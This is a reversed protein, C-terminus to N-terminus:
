RNDPLLKRLRVMITQDNSDLIQLMIRTVEKLSDDTNVSQLLLEELSIHNILSGGIMVCLLRGVEEFTLPGNKILVQINKIDCFLPGLENEFLFGMMHLQALIDMLEVAARLTSNPNEPKTFFSRVVSVIQVEFDQITRLSSESGIFYKRFHLSVKQKTEKLHLLDKESCVEANDIGKLMMTLDALSQFDSGVTDVSDSFAQKAGASRLSHQLPVGAKVKSEKRVFEQICDNKVESIASLVIREGMEIAHSTALSSAIALVDTDTGPPALLSLSSKITQRFSDRILKVGTVKCEESLSELMKTYEALSMMPSTNLYEEYDTGEKVFKPQICSLKITDSANKIVRDVIVECLEQLVKHQHFFSDILKEKIGHKDTTPTGPRSSSWPSADGSVSLSLRHMYKQGSGLSGLSISRPRVKKTGSNGPRINNCSLDSLLQFLDEFYPVSSALFKKSYWLPLSDFQISKPQDFSKGSVAVTADLASTAARPPLNVPSLNQTVLLGVVDNFFADLQLYVLIMNNQLHHNMENGCHLNISRLLTFTDVYYPLKKSSADWRMMSLFKVVWPITVVLRHQKWSNEIHMKLDLPPLTDVGYHDNSLGWNPSFVLLGLFKALLEVKAIHQCFGKTENVANMDSIYQALRRKLHTNFRYSDGAQLVIFFFEQHEQFSQEPTVDNFSSSKQDLSLKRSSKNKQGSKSTFRMQLKELRKKDTVHRLVESDTEGVPLLGIQLLLDCFFNVFWEINGPSVNKMMDRAERKISNISNDLQENDMLKGRVEQFARLQYLFSDRLEEREKFLRSLDLSRFNHRSDRAYDFPLTLHPTQADSGLAKQGTEFILETKAQHMNNKLTAVLSPCHQQLAPLASFLKVTEYGINIIMVELSVLVQTVFFICCAESHFIGALVNTKNTHRTQSLKEMTDSLSILRMLLHLELLIFPALHSKIITCYISALRKLKEKEIPISEIDNPTPMQQDSICFQNFKDVPLSSIGDSSSSVVLDINNTETKSAIASQKSLNVAAHGSVLKKQKAKSDKPKKKRGVLMTPNVAASTFTAPAFGGENANNHLQNINDPQQRRYQAGGKQDKKKKRGVLLTPPSNASAFSSSLPPFSDEYTPAAGTAAHNNDPPQKKGTSVKDTLKTDRSPNATTTELFPRCADRIANLITISTKLRNTTCHSTRDARDVNSGSNIDDKVVSGALWNILASANADSEVASSILTEDDSHFQQCFCGDFKCRRKKSVVAAAATAPQGAVDTM